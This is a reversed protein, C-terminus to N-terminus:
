RTICTLKTAQDLGLQEEETRDTQKHILRTLADRFDTKFFTYLLPNIFFVSYILSYLVLAIPWESIMVTGLIFYLGPSASFFSVTALVLYLLVTRQHKQSKNGTQSLQRSSKARKIILWRTHINLALIIVFPMCGILVLVTIRHILKQDEKHRLFPIKALSAVLSICWIIALTIIVKKGTVMTRHRFPSRIKLYRDLTALLIHFNTSILMWVLVLDMAGCSSTYM